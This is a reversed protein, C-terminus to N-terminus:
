TRPTCSGRSETRTNTCCGRRRVGGEPTLSLTTTAVTCHASTLTHCPCSPPSLSLTHAHTHVQCYAPRKAEQRTRKAGCVASGQGSMEKLTARNRRKTRTNGHPLCGTHCKDCRLRVKLFAQAIPWPPPPLEAGCAQDGCVECICHDSAGICAGGHTRCALTVLDSGAVRCTWCIWRTVRYQTQSYSFDSSVERGLITFTIPKTNFSTHRRPLALSCYAGQPPGRAPHCFGAM